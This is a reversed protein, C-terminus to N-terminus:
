KLHYLIINKNTFSANSYYHFGAKKLLIIMMHLILYIRKDM